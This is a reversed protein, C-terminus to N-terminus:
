HLKLHWLSFLAYLVCTKRLPFMGQDRSLKQHCNEMKNIRKPLFFLVFVFVFCFCDPWLCFLFLCFVYMEASFLSIKELFSAKHFTNTATSAKFPEKKYKYLIQPPKTCGFLTPSHILVLFLCSLLLNERVFFCQKQLLQLIERGRREANKNTGTRRYSGNDFNNM